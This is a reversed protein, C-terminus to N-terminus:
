RLTLMLMLMASQRLLYDAFPPPLLFHRRCPTARPSFPMPMLFLLTFILSLMLFFFCDDQRIDILTAYDRFGAYDADPTADKKCRRYRRLAM